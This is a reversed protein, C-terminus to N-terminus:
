YLEMATQMAGDLQTKRTRTKEEREREREKKETVMKAGAAVAMSLLCGGNCSATTAVLGEEGDLVDKIM